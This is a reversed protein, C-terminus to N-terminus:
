DALADRDANLGLFVGGDYSTVGISLAHRPALPIIPYASLMRAGGAYLPTQPGPVNTVTLSYSRQSLSSGVRAGLTHLTPPAFGVIGAMAKAGIPRASEGYRTTDFTIRQLRIIPDPEGIPLDLTFADVLSISGDGGAVSMPVLTRIVADQPVADGRSLLWSRMAGAVLA